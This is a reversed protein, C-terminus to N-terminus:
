WIVVCKAYSYASVTHQCYCICHMIIFPHITHQPEINRRAVDSVSLFVFYYMHTHMYEVYPICIHLHFYVFEVFVSRGVNMQQSKSKASNHASHMRGLTVYPSQMGEAKRIIASLVLSSNLMLAPLHPLRSAKKRDTDLDCTLLTGREFGYGCRNTFQVIHSKSDEEQVQEEFIEKM